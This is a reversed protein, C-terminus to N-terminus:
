VATVAHMTPPEDTYVLMSDGKSRRCTSRLLILTLWSRTFKNRLTGHLRAKSLSWISRASSRLSFRFCLRPTVFTALSATGFVVVLFLASKHVWAFFLYHVTFATEGGAREHAIFNTPSNRLM